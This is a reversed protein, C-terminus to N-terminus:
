PSDGPADKQGHAGSGDAVAGARPRPPGEDPFLSPGIPRIAVLLAVLCWLWGGSGAQALAPGLWDLPAPLPMDTVSARVWPHLTYLGLLSVGVAALSASATTRALRFLAVRRLRLDAEREPGAFAPRRLVGAALRRTAVPLLLILAVACAMWPNFFPARPGDGPLLPFGAPDALEGAAAAAEDVTPGLAAAALQILLALGAATVTTWALWVPARVSEIEEGDPAPGPDPAAERALRATRREAVALWALAAWAAGAVVLLGEGPRNEATLLVAAAAGLALVPGGVTFGMGLTLSRVMPPSAPAPSGQRGAGGDEPLPVRPARYLLALACLGTIVASPLSAADLFRGADASLASPPLSYLYSRAAFLLSLLIAGAVRLARYASAARLRRDTDRDTGPVAPRMAILRLVAVLGAATVPLWPLWGALFRLAADPGPVLALVAALVLLDLALIALVVALPYRPLLARVGRHDLAATRVTGRPRPWTLEGAALILLALVAPSGLQLLVAPWQPGDGASLGRSGSVPELPSLLGPLWVVAALAVIGIRRSYREAALTVTRADTGAGPRVSLIVAGLVTIWLALSSVTGAIAAAAAM